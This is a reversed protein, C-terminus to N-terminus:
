LVEDIARDFVNKGSGGGAQSGGTEVDNMNSDAADKAADDTYAKEAQKQAAIIKLAAQGADVPNTFMADDAISEYGRPM